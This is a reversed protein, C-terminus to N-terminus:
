IREKKPYNKDLYIYPISKLILSIRSNFYFYTITAKEEKRQTYLTVDLHLIIWAYIESGSLGIFEVM